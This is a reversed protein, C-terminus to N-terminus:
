KNIYMVTNSTNINILGLKSPGTSKRNGVFSRGSQNCPEQWVIIHVSLLTIVNSLSAVIINHLSPFEQFFCILQSFLVTRRVLLFLLFYPGHLPQVLLSQFLLFTQDKPSDGLIGLVFFNVGTWPCGRSFRSHLSEM